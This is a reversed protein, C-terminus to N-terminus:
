FSCMRTGGQHKELGRTRYAKTKQQKYSKSTATEAQSFFNNFQLQLPLNSGFTVIPLGVPKLAADVGYQRSLAHSTARTAGNFDSEGACIVSGATLLEGSPPWLIRVLLMRQKEPAFMIPPKFFFMGQYDLHVPHSESLPRNPPHIPCEM